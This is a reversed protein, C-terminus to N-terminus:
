ARRRVQNVAIIFAVGLTFGHMVASPIFVFYRELGPSSLAPALYALARSRRRRPACRACRSAVCEAAVCVAGDPGGHHGAAAPDVARVPHFVGVSRGVARRRSLSRPRSLLRPPWAARRLRRPARGFGIFFAGTPGVVNYHSGGFFASTLGAWAATIIGQAPAAAPAAAHARLRITAALAARPLRARV